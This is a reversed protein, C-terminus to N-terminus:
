RALARRFTMPQELALDVAVGSPVHIAGQWRGSPYVSTGAHAASLPALLATALTLTRAAHVM